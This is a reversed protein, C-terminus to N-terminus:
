FESGFFGERKRGKCHKVNFTSCSLSEWERFL